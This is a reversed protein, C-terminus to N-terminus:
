IVDVLNRKTPSTKDVLMKIFLKRQKTSETILNENNTWWYTRGKFSKNLYFNSHNFINPKRSKFDKLLFSREIRVSNPLNSIEACLSTVIKKNCINKYLICYLKHLEKNKKDKNKMRVFIIIQITASLLWFGIFLFLYKDNEM